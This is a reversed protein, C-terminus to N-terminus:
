CHSRAGLLWIGFGINFIIKELYINIVACIAYGRLNNIFQLFSKLKEPVAKNRMIDGNKQQVVHFITYKQRKQM